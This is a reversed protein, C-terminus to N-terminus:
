ALGPVILFNSPDLEYREFDKLFTKTNWYDVETIDEVNQNSHFIKKKLSYKILNKGIMWTNIHIFVKEFYWFLNTSIMTLFIARM